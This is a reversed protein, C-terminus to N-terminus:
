RFINTDLIFYFNLGSTLKDVRKSTLQLRIFNLCSTLKNVQKSTLQVVYNKCIYAKKKQIKYKKMIKESNKMLKAWIERFGYM